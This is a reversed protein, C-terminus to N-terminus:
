DKRDIRDNVINRVTAFAAKDDKRIKAVEELEALCEAESRELEAIRALLAEKEENPPSDGLLRVLDAINLDASIGGPVLTTGKYQKMACQTWGGYPVWNTDLEAVEDYHADWLPYREFGAMGRMVKSWMHRSTYIVVPKDMIHSIADDLRGKPNTPHLLRLASDEIDLAVFRIHQYESGAAEKAAQILFETRTTTDPPVILYIATMMGVKRAAALQQACYANKGGPVPGGGWAQVVVMRFGADYAKKWRSEEIDGGWESVDLARIVDDAVNEEKPEWYIPANVKLYDALQHGMVSVDYSKWDHHGPAWAFLLFFAVRRDAYGEGEISMIDALHRGPTKKKLYGWPRNHRPDSDPLRSTMIKGDLVSEGVGVKPIYQPAVYKRIFELNLEWHGLRWNHGWNRSSNWDPWDYENLGLFGDAEALKVIGKSMYAWLPLNGWNLIEGTEKGQADKKITPGALHSESLCFCMPILGHSVMNEIFGIEYENLKKADKTNFIVPENISHAVVRDSVERFPASWALMREQFDGHDYDDPYARIILLTKPSAEALMGVLDVQSVKVGPRIEEMPRTDLPRTLMFEVATPKNQIAWKLAGAFDEIIIIGLKSM